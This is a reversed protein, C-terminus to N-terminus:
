LGYPLELLAKHRQGPSPRQLNGMICGKRLREESLSFWEGQELSCESRILADGHSEPWRWKPM